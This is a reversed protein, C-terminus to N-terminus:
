ENFYPYNGNPNMRLAIDYDNNAQTIFGMAYFIRGRQYYSDADEGLSLAYNIDDLAQRHDGYQLYAESRLNYILTNQCGLTIAQNYDVIAQYTNGMSHYVIGREIYADPYEPDIAIAENSEVLALQYNQQRDFEIARNLHYFYPDEDDEYDYEDEYGNNCSSNLQNNSVYGMRSNYYPCWENEYFWKEGQSYIGDAEIIDVVFNQLEAIMENSMYDLYESCLWQFNINAGYIAQFRNVLERRRYAADPRGIYEQIKMLEEPAEQGDIRSVYVGLAFAGVLDNEDACLLELLKKKTNNAGDKYGYDYGNNQGNHYGASYAKKNQEEYYQIGAYVATGIAASALVAPSAVVGLAAGVLAFLDNDNKSM